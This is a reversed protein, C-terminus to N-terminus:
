GDASSGKGTWAKLLQLAMPWHQSAIASSFGVVDPVRALHKLLTELIRWVRVCVCLNIRRKDTWKMRTEHKMISILQMQVHSMMQLLLLADRWAGGKECASIGTNFSAETDKRCYAVATLNM